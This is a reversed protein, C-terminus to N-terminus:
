QFQPLYDETLCAQIVNRGSKEAMKLFYPNDDIVISQNPAIGLDKFIINYFNENIKRINILDPGYFATFYQKIEMGELYFKLEMSETASSTSLIYGKDFLEKITQNVEPFASRIRLDVYEVAGYYIENYKDEDPRTIGISDFMQNIWEEIFYHKAERYSKDRYEKALKPIEIGVFNHIFRANAISWSKLDGGFRPALYEGVLKQWQKGRIQNDNLVNGDDFFIYIESNDLKMHNFKINSIGDYIKGNCKIESNLFIDKWTFLM